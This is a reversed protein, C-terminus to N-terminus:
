SLLNVLFDVFYKPKKLEKEPPIKKPIPKNRRKGSLLSIKSVHALFFM